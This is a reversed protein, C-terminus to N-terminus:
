RTLMHCFDYARCGCCVSGCLVADAVLFELVVSGPLLPFPKATEKATSSLSLVPQEGQLQLTQGKKSTVWWLPTLACLTERSQM